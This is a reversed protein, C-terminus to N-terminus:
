RGVVAVGDRFYSGFFLSVQRQAEPVDFVVFHGDHYCMNDDGCYRSGKCSGDPECADETVPSRFQLLGATVSGGDLSINGAIPLSRPAADDRRLSQGAVERVVEGLTPIGIGIALADTTENPTYHDVFGQTVLLNKAPIGPRPARILASAQNAPDSVDLLQQIITALPHFADIKEQILSGIVDPINIPETKSLLALISNAGAGSLVAAGVGPEASLFLPGTLGGQSHGMFGVKQPDFQVEVGFDVRTGKAFTLKRFRLNRVMRLLAFNDSGGQVVNYISATPNFINIFALQPETGEPARPGHLTQDIGIVAARGIVKGSADTMRSLRWAVDGNIFSRYSGGTGHAYLVVPWGRSPMTGKPISIAFRLTETRAVKPLGQADLEIGGGDPPLSFPVKGQQFFPAEYTGRVEVYRETERAVVLDKAVPAPLSHVVARIKSTLDFPGGTTFVAASLIGTLGTKALYARLPAYAAYAREEGREPRDALLRAFADAQVVPHGTPDALGDTLLAAYITAPRLTFGPLPLLTLSHAGIFRGAAPKYALLLPVRKGYDPSSPDIDVLQVASGAAVAGAPSAPLTGEDIADSFRFHVAGNTSFGFRGSAVLDYYHQLLQPQGSSFRALDITGDARRRIDNPFPLAYLDADAGGALDFLPRTPTISASSCAAVALAAGLAVFRFVYKM